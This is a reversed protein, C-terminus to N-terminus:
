DCIMKITRWDARNFYETCTRGKRTVSRSDVNCAYGAENVSVYGDHNLDADNKEVHTGACLAVFLLQTRPLWLLGGLLAFAALWQLVTWIPRPRARLKPAYSPLKDASGPVRTM